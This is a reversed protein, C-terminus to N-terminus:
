QKCLDGTSKQIRTGRHGHNSQQLVMEPQEAGASYEYSVPGQTRFLGRFGYAGAGTLPTDVRLWQVQSRFTDRDISEGVTQEFANMYHELSARNGIMGSIQGAQWLLSAADYQPAGKM